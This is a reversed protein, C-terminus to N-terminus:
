SADADHGNVPKIADMATDLLRTAETQHTVSIEGEVKADVKTASLKAHVYPAADVAARYQDAAKANPANFVEHCHPCNVQLSSNPGDIEAHQVALIHDLPAM